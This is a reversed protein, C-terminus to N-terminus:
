VRIHFHKVDFQNNLSKKWRFQMKTILPQWINIDCSFFFFIHYIMKHGATSAMLYVLDKTKEKKIKQFSLISWILFLVGDKNCPTDCKYTKLQGHSASGLRHDTNLLILFINRDNAEVKKKCCHYVHSSSPITGSCKLVIEFHENEWLVHKQCKTFTEGWNNGRSPVPWGLSQEAVVPSSVCDAGSKM